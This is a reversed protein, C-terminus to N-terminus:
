TQMNLLTGKCLLSMNLLSLRNKSATEISPHGNSSICLRNASFPFVLDQRTEAKLEM